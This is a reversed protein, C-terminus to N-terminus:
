RRRDKTMRPMHAALQHKISPQQRFKLEHEFDIMRASVSDDFSPLIGLPRMQSYM